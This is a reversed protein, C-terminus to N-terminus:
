PVKKLIPSGVPKSFGADRLATEIM